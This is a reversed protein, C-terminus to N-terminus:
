TRSRYNAARPPSGTGSTVMCHQGSKEFVLASVISDPRDVLPDDLLRSPLGKVAVAAHWIGQIAPELHDRKMGEEHKVPELVIALGGRVEGLRHEIQKEEVDSLSDSLLRDIQENTLCPSM